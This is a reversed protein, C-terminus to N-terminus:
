DSFVSSSKIPLSPWVYRDWGSHAFTESADWLEMMRVNQPDISEGSVLKYDLERALTSEVEEPTFTPNQNRIGQRSYEVLGNRLYPVDGVAANYVTRMADIPGLTFWALLGAMGLGTSVLCGLGNDSSESDKGM